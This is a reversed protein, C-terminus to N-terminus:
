RRGFSRLSKVKEKEGAEKKDFSSPAIVAPPIEGEYMDCEPDNEGIENEDSAYAPPSGDAVGLLVYKSKDSDSFDSKEEDLNPLPFLLSRSNQKLSIWSNLQTFIEKLYGILNENANFAIKKGKMSPAVELEMKLSNVHFLIAYASNIDKAKNFAKIKIAFENIKEKSIFLFDSKGDLCVANEINIKEFFLMIKKEIEDASVHKKKSEENTKRFFDYLKKM